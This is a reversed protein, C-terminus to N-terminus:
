ALDKAQYVLGEDQKFSADHEEDLVILGVNPLPLFLSSRTGCVLVPKDAPLAAAEAIFATLEATERLCFYHSM